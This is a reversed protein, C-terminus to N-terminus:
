ALNRTICKSLLARVAEARWFKLSPVPQVHAPNRMHDDDWKHWNQILFAQPKSYPPRRGERFGKGLHMFFSKDRRAAHGTIIGISEDWCLDNALARVVTEEDERDHPRWGTEQAFIGTLLENVVSPLVNVVRKVAPDMRERWKADSFPDAKLFASVGNRAAMAIDDFANRRTTNQTPSVPNTPPVKRPTQKGKKM